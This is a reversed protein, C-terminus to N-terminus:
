FQITRVRKGNLNWSLRISASSSCGRVVPGDDYMMVDDANPVPAPILEEITDCGGM